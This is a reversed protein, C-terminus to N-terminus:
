EMLSHILFSFAKSILIHFLVWSGIRLIKKSYIKKYALDNRIQLSNEGYFYYPRAQMFLSQILEFIEESFWSGFAQVM